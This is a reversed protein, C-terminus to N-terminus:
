CSYPQLQGESVSWGGDISLVQGTTFRSLDSMFIVAAGEAVFAQAASLGLGTTGGVVVIKKGSLWPQKM